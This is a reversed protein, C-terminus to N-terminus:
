WHNHTTLIITIEVGHSKAAALVTDPEAPDVAACVGSAEDIVLYSYNESKGLVPIAEVRFASAAFKVTTAAHAM